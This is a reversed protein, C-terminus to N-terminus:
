SKRRKKRRRKKRWRRKRWRRKRRRGSNRSGVDREFDYELGIKSHPRSHNAEIGANEGGAARGWKGLSEDDHNSNSNDNGNNNGNNIGPWPRCEM